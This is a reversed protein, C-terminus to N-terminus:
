VEVAWSWGEPVPRVIPEYLHPERHMAFNFRHKRYRVSMDLDIDAVRVEDSFSVCEAVIQGSPAIIMTGGIQEVGEGTGM